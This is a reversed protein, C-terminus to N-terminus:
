GRHTLPGPHSREHSRIFATFSNAVSRIVSVDESLRGSRGQEHSDPGPHVEHIGNGAEKTRVHVPMRGLVDPNCTKADGPLVVDEHVHHLEELSLLVFRKGVGHSANLKGTKPVHRLGTACQLPTAPTAPEFGATGVYFTRLRSHPEPSQRIRTTRVPSMPASRTVSPRQGPVHAMTHGRNVDHRSRFRSVM